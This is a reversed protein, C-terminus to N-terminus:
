EDLKNQRPRPPVKMPMAMTMKPLVALNESFSSTDNISQRREAERFSLSSQREYERERAQAVAAESEM